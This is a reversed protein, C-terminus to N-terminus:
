WWPEWRQIASAEGTFFFCASLRCLELPYSFRMCANATIIQCVTTRAWGGRPYLRVIECVLFGPFENWKFKIPWNKNGQPPQALVVTKTAILSHHKTVVTQDIQIQYRDINGELQTWIIQVRCPWFCKFFQPSMNLDNFILLQLSKQWLEQWVNSSWHPQLLVILSACFPLFNLSIRLYDTRPLKLFQRGQPIKNSYPSRCWCALFGTLM